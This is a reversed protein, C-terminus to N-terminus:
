TRGIEIFVKGDRQEVPYTRLKRRDIGFLPEGTVIDYEYFHWPCQLVRGDMGFILEGPESPLYTGSVFGQCIPAHRHPCLNLIAYLEGNLNFIGVEREGATVIKCEGSPFDKASGVEYRM